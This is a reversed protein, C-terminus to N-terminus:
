RVQIKGARIGDAAIVKVLYTGRPWSAPVQIRAADTGGSEHRGRYIQMGTMDAIEIIYSGGAGAGPDIMIWERAPNPYVQAPRDAVRAGASMVGGRDTRIIVGERGAAHAINSDVVYVAYLGELGEPAFAYPSVQRVWSEGGDNTRLITEGGVAYGVRADSFHVSQLFRADTYSYRSWSAGGDTTKMITGWGGVAFGTRASTFHMSFLTTDTGVELMTWNEGGDTTKLIQPSESLIYGLNRDIFQVERLDDEVGLDRKEWTGGADATRLVAGDVGVAWGTTDDIFWIDTLAAVPPTVVPRWTEGADTTRLLFGSSSDTTITDSGVIVGTRADSFDIGFLIGAMGSRRPSWSLGGDTTKLIVGGAGVVYGTDRSTFHFAEFQVNTDSAVQVWQAAAPSALALLFSLAILLYAIM